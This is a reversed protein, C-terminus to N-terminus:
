DRITGDISAFRKDERRLPFIKLSRVLRRISGSIRTIGALGVTPGWAYMAVREDPDISVDAPRAQFQARKRRVNSVKKSRVEADADRGSGCSCTGGCLGSALMHPARFQGPEAGDGGWSRVIKGTDDLQLVRNALVDAVFITGDRDIELGYPAFGEWVALVKGEGDFVQIRKNERDGVLV